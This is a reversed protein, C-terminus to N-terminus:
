RVYQDRHLRGRELTRASHGALHPDALGRHSPDV